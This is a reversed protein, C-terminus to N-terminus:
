KTVLIHPGPGVFGAAPLLQNILLDANKLAAVPAAVGDAISQIADAFIANIGSIDYLPMSTAFGVQGAFVGYIPEAIQANLLDRRSTPRHTKQHYYSQSQQSGLFNLLDWAQKQHTSNRSVTEVMYNALVARPNTSVSPDHVQPLPAVGIDKVTLSKYGQRVLADSLTSIKGYSDSYGAITSVKGKAFLTLERDGTTPAIYQNWSSNASTPLAFSTYYQLASFFPNGATGDAASQTSSLVSTNHQPSYISAGYQLFISYLIDLGHTINDARGLAAGSVEFRESSNDSKTLTTVDQAFDKWLVSPAGKSPLRDEYQRKNYYLALTDIFLPIGYIRLSPPTAGDPRVLDRDAVAVFTQRFQDVTMLEPPMPAVKKQHRYMWANPVSLIDPGGGEAMENILGNEYQAYSPFKTYLRIQLGPHSAQYSDLLPKIVDADDGFRYYNLVIQETAGKKQASEKRFLSCGSLPMAVLSILLLNLVIKKM